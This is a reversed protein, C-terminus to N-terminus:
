AQESHTKFSDSNTHCIVSQPFIDYNGWSESLFSGLPSLSMCFLVMSAVEKRQHAADHVVFSEFLALCM